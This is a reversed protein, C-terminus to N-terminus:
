LGPNWDADADQVTKAARKGRWLLSQDPGRQRPGRCLTPCGRSTPDGTRRQPTQVPQHRLARRHSGAGVSRDAGRRLVTRM